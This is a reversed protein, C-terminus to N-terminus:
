PVSSSVAKGEAMHVRLALSPSGDEGLDHWYPSPTEYWAEYVEDVKTQDRHKPQKVAEIALADLAEKSTM